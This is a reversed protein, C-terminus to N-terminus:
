AALRMREAVIQRGHPGRVREYASDWRDAEAMVENWIETLAQKAKALYTPDYKAYIGSTKHMAPDIHGLLGSVDAGPVGRRRLETAVTHRVTKPICARPLGLVARMTRWASRRSGVQPLPAARWEELEPKLPEICPIWPNVKKTRRWEPPHLDILTEHHQLAPDFALAANPRCASAIMLLVWRNMGTAPRTFAVIAGLQALSLRTDRPHSRHQQKVNPLRPVYAIRTENAAHNLAAKLGEINRKVSEGAVGKSNVEYRKGQWLTTYSHSGMRWKRFRETVPPGLQRVTVDSGLEDQQLFGIWCRLSCAITHPSRAEKGHEEYYLLLQPILKVDDIDGPKRAREVEVFAHIVKKAPELTKHRTSKYLISRAGPDYHAIQWIDPAKGDRRKDLWYDGVIYPSTDRSM